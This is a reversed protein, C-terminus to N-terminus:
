HKTCENNWYREKDWQSGYGKHQDYRDVSRKAYLNVALGLGLMLIIFLIM